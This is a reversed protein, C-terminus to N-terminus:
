ESKHQEDAPTRRHQYGTVVAVVFLLMFSTPEPVSQAAAAATVGNGFQRQWALFDFGDSNGDLNSDSDGNIGFDGQWQTIDNADVNHDGNFDGPTNITLYQDVSLDKIRQETGDPWVVLLEDIQTALGLGFHVPLDSQNFTGANTNAERRLIREQPTGQHITAYLSAGLGTTNDTPGSLEIYMWHNSNNTANSVFVREDFDVDTTAILDQDGDM